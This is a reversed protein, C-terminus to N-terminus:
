SPLTAHVEPPRGTSTTARPSWSFSRRLYRHAGGCFLNKENAIGLDESARLDRHERERHGEGLFAHIDGNADRRDALSIARVNVAHTVRAHGHQGGLARQRGTGLAQQKRTQAAAGGGVGSRQDVGGTARHDQHIKRGYFTAGRDHIGGTVCRAILHDHAAIDM